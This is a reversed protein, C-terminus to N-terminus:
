STRVSQAAGSVDQLRQSAQIAKLMESISTKSNSGATNTYPSNSGLGGKPKMLTLYPRKDADTPKRSLAVQKKMYDYGGYGLQNLQEAMKDLQAQRYYVEGSKDSETNVRMSAGFLFNAVTVPLRDQYRPESPLLRRARGMFPFFQELAYLTKDDVLTKGEADTQSKGLMGLVAGMGSKEMYAPMQVLGQFPQSKGFYMKSDFMGIELPTKIVPSILGLVDNKNTLANLDKFPMDPMLYTMGGPLKFPLRVSLRDKMWTPMLDEPPSVSEISDKVEVYRAYAKPNKFIMEMQTPLNKRFWTYFPSIRRAIQTEASNLDAYNFHAKYVLDYIGDIGRGSDAAHMAAAGRLHREMWANGKFGARNLATNAVRDTLDRAGTKISSNLNSVADTAIGGGAIVGSYHVLTYSEQLQSPVRALAQEVTLGEKIANTFASDATRFARYMGPSVDFLYNMFLGSYGNRAIFGPSTIAWSKFITNMKDYYRLFSPLEGPATAQVTLKLLDAVDDSTQMGRSLETFGKRVATRHAWEAAPGHMWQNFKLDDIASGLMRQAKADAQLAVSLTDRLRRNDAIAAKTVDDVDKQAGSLVPAMMREYDGDLQSIREMGDSMHGQLVDIDEIRNEIKTTVGKNSRTQNALQKELTAREVSLADHAEQIVVNTRPGTAIADPVVDDLEALLQKQEVTDKVVQKVVAPDAANHRVAAAAMKDGDVVPAVAKVLAQEEATLKAEAEINKIITNYDGGESAAKQIRAVDAPFLDPNSQVYENAKVVDNLQRENKIGAGIPSADFEDLAARADAAEDLYRDKVARDGARRASMRADRETQWLDMRQAKAAELDGVANMQAKADAAVVDFSQHAESAFGAPAVPAQVPVPPLSALQQEAEMAMRQGTEMAAGDGAMQGQLAMKRGQVLQEQLMAHQSALDMPAAPAEAAMPAVPPAMPVADDVLGVPADVAQAAQTARFNDVERLVGEYTSIDAEIRAINAAQEEVIRAPILGEQKAVYRDISAAIGEATRNKPVSGLVGESDVLDNLFDKLDEPDGVYDEIRSKADDAAARLDEIEGDVVEQVNRSKIKELDARRKELQQPVDEEFKAMMKTRSAVADAEKTAALAAKQAEKEARLAQADVSINKNQQSAMFAPDSLKLQELEDFKAKLIQQEAAVDAKTGMAKAQALAELQDRIESEVVKREQALDRAVGPAVGPAMEPVGVPMAEPMAGIEPTIAGLAADDVLPAAEVAGVAANDAVGAGPVLEALRAEFVDAKVKGAAFAETLQDLQQTKKAVEASSQQILKELKRAAPSGKAAKALAAEQTGLVDSLRILNRTVGDVLETSAVGAATSTTARRTTADALRDGSDLIRKVARKQWKPLDKQVAMPGDKTVRSALFGNGVSEGFKESYSNLLSKQSLAWDNVFMEHGVTQQAFANAQERVSLGQPHAPIVEEFVAPSGDKNVTKFQKFEGNINANVSDPVKSNGQIFGGGIDQVAEDATAGKGLVTKKGTKADVHVWRHTAKEPDQLTTTQYTKNGKADLVFKGDADRVPLRLENGHVVNAQKAPDIGYGKTTSTSGENVAAKFEDTLVTGQHYERTSGVLDEFGNPDVGYGKSLTDRGRERALRLWHGDEGQFAFVREKLGPSLADVERIAERSRGAVNQLLEMSVGDREATQVVDMVAPAMSAGYAGKAAQSAREKSLVNLSKVTETPSKAELIARKLPGEGGAFRPTDSIERMVKSTKIGKLTGDAVASIKRVGANRGLYVQRQTIGQGTLTKSAFNSVRGTGPVNLYLGGRLDGIGKTADGTAELTKGLDRIASNSMGGFGGTGKTALQQAAGELKTATALHGAAAVNDGSKAAVGALTRAKSAGEAAKTAIGFGGGVKTILAQPALYTLPDLAIDGTLNVAIKAATPLNKYWDAGALVDGTGVNARLDKLFNRDTDVVRSIGAVIATKPKTILNLAKVLNSEKKDKEGVAKSAAKLKDSLPADSNAINGISGSLKAMALELQTPAAVPAKRGTNLQVVGRRGAGRGVPTQSTRRTTGTNVPVQALKALLAPDLRAAM